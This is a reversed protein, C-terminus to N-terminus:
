RRVGFDATIITAPGGGYTGPAVAVHVASIGIQRWSANLLNKRHPASHMWLDLARTASLDPAAWVLNEGVSWYHSSGIPFYRGVRKDFPSGDASEHAFYGRQAMETSHQTAAATLGASITLAVLGHSRRVANVDALVGRELTTFGVSRHVRAAPAASTGVAAAAAFAAAVASTRKWAGALM